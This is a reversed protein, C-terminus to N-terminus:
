HRPLFEKLPRLPRWERNYGQVGVRDSKNGSPKYSLSTEIKLRCSPPVWRCAAAPAPSHPPCAPSESGAARPGPTRRDPARLGAPPPSVAPGVFRAQCKAALRPARPTRSGSAPTRNDRERRGHEEGQKRFRRFEGSPTAPNEEFPVNERVHLVHPRRGVVLRHRENAGRPSLSHPDPIFNMEQEPAQEEMNGHFRAEDHWLTGSPKINAGWTELCANTKAARSLLLSNQSPKLALSGANSNWLRWKTIPSM